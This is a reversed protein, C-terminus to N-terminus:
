REEDRSQEVDTTCSAPFGNRGDIEVLCVRCSGFADLSDTACLKPISVGAEAAARMVSSGRAVTVPQGDVTLSVPQGIKLPMPTGMDLRSEYM